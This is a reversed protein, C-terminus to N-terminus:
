QDEQSEEVLEDDDSHTSELAEVLRVADAFTEVARRNLDHVADPAYSISEAIMTVEIDGYCIRIHVDRSQQAAM